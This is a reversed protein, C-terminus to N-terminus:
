GYPFNLSGCLAPELSCRAHTARTGGGTLVVVHPKRPDGGGPAQCRGWHCRNNRTRRPMRVYPARDAAHHCDGPSPETPLTSVLHPEEALSPVGRGRCSSGGCSGRLLWPSYVHGAHGLLSLAMVLRVVELARDYQLDPRITARVKRGHRCSDARRGYANDLRRSTQRM